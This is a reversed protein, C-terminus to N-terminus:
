PSLSFARGHWSRAAPKEWKGDRLQSLHTVSQDFVVTEPTVIGDAALEEGSAVDMLDGPALDEAPVVEMANGVRKKATAPATAAMATAAESARRRGRSELVRGALLLTVLMGMSDLYTDGGTVTVVLGHGFLVSVGLAIPLDMHLIGHRLGSVAGVFFPEACWLAVPAALALSIWQFLAVYRSDMGGLWGTYLAASLMMINMAAFAAVGLRILLDRDPEGEEGLIRPRYGLTSIRSAVEGLRVAEPDWRIRARGTAYSLTAEQVGETRQLVNETVWVCSACRLGDVQLRIECLGDEGPTAPIADWDGASGEPRPPFADREQYYAELGAGKIIAAAMECGSCCYVDEQGEVPTGCHPCRAQSQSGTPGEKSPSASKPKTPPCLTM